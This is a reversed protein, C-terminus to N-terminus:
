EIKEHEIQSQLADMISDMGRSIVMDFSHSEKLVEDRLQTLVNKALQLLHEITPDNLPSINNKDFHAIRKDRNKKLEEIQEEADNLEAQMKEAMEATLGLHASSIRILEHVSHKEEEKLLHYLCLVLTSYISTQILVLSDYWQRVEGLRRDEIAKLQVHLADALSFVKCADIIKEKTKTEDSNM